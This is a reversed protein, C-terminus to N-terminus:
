LSLTFTNIIPLGTEQHETCGKGNEGEIVGGVVLKEEKETLIKM